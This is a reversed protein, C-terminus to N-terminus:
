HQGRDLAVARPRAPVCVMWEMPGPRSEDLAYDRDHSSLAALQPYRREDRARTPVVTVEHTAAFREALVGSISPDIFDHLEILVAASALSAVTRPSFLELEFGECDSIVLAPEASIGALQTRADTGIKLRDSVGNSEALRACAARADPNIDYAYVQASPLRAALGVAYYGEGCGVNVVTKFGCAIMLEIIGSLEAEYSGVLRPLSISGDRGVGYAMGRFPGGGVFYGGNARAVVAAIEDSRRKAEALGKAQRAASLSTAVAPALAFLVRRAVHRLLRSRM